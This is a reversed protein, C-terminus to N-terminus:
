GVHDHCFASLEADSPTESVPSVSMGSAAIIRTQHSHEGGQAQLGLLFDDPRVLSLGTLQEIQSGHRLLDEDRSVLYDAESAAAQAIVRLDKDGLRATSHKGQLAHLKMQWAQQSPALTRFDGHASTVAGNASHQDSLESRSQPTVTLEAAETVWDATLALSAPFDRGDLIDLLVNTDIAVVMRADEQEPEDWLTRAAIPWWWTVLPLRDRGRGSKRGLRQFGLHPWMTHAEYDERCSLRIGARNPNREVIGEVLQRAIGRGREGRDVCLHTLSIDSTRVRKGFLTYGKVDGDEVFALLRGEAAAQRIAAFPLQGLTRSNANGLAIVQEYHQSDPIVAEIM